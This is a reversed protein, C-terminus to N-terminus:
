IICFNTPTLQADIFRFLPFLAGIAILLSIELHNYHSTSYARAMKKNTRGHVQLVKRLGAEGDFFLPSGLYGGKKSEDPHKIPRMAHQDKPGRRPIGLGYSHEWGRATRDPVGALTKYPAGDCGSGYVFLFYCM